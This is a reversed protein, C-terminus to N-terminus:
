SPTTSALLYYVTGNIKIAVTTDQTPTGAGLIGTGETYLGLITNGASLDTSFIQVANTAGGAPETGNAIGFAGAATGDFTLSGIGVNGSTREIRIRDVANTRLRLGHTTDAWISGTNGQTNLELDIKTLALGYLNYRFNGATNRMLVTQETANTSHIFLPTNAQTDLGGFAVNKTTIDWAAITAAAAGTTIEFNNSSSFWGISAKSAGESRLDIAPSGNTNTSEVRLVISSDRKVEMAPVNGGTSAIIFEWGLTSVTTNSGLSGSGDYIGNGDAGGGTQWTAVGNADSTLVKGIAQNGDVYRFSGVLHLKSTPATIGIGVNGRDVLLAYNTAGNAADLYAAINSFGPNAFALSAHFGYHDAGTFVGDAKFQYQFQSGSTNVGINSGPASTGISLSGRHYGAGDDYVIFSSITDSNLIFLSRTASTNGDGEVQVKALTPTTTGIGFNGNIFGIANGDQDVSRNGSLVGDATYLTPINAIIDQWEIYATEPTGGIDRSIDLRDTDQPVSQHILYESIKENSM